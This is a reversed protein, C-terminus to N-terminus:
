GILFQPQLVIELRVFPFDEFKWISEMEIKEHCTEDGDGNGIRMGVRMGVRIKLRIGMRIEMRM